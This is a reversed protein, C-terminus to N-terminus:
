IFRTWLTMLHPSPFMTEIFTTILRIIKTYNIQNLEFVEALDMPKQYRLIVREAEFM